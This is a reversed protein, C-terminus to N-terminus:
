PIWQLLHGDTLRKLHTGDTNVSLISSGEKGLEKEEEFAIRTGGPSFCPTSVVTSTGSFNHAMIENGKLPYSTLSKENGDSTDALWLNYGYLYGDGGDVVDTRRVFAIHRGDPSWSLELEWADTRTLRRAGTGDANLTWIDTQCLPSPPSASYTRGGVVAIRKGDTNWSPAGWEYDAPVDQGKLLVISGSLGTVVSYSKETQLRLIRRYVSGNYNGVECIIQKDDPSFRPFSIQTGWGSSWLLIRHIHKTQLDHVYLNFRNFSLARKGDFSFGGFQGYGKPVRWVRQQDGGDSNMTWVVDRTFVIRNHLQLPAALATKGFCFAVGIALPFKM